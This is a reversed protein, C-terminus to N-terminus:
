GHHRQVPRDNDPQHALRCGARTTASASATKGEEAEMGGEEGVEGATVVGPSMVEDNPLFAQLTRMMEHCPDEKEM